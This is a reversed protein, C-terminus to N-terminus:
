WLQGDSSRNTKGVKSLMFKYNEKLTIHWHLVRFFIVLSYKMNHKKHKTFLTFKSSFFYVRSIRNFM